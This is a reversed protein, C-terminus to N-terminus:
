CDEGGDLGAVRVVEPKEGKKEEENWRLAFSPSSDLRNRSLNFFAYVNRKEGM